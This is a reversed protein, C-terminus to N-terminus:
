ESLMNEPRRVTQRGTQQLCEVRAQVAGFERRPFRDANSAGAGEAVSLQRRLAVTGVTLGSLVQYVAGGIM